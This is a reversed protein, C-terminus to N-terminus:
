VDYIRGKGLGGEVSGRLDGRSLALLGLPDSGSTSWGGADDDCALASLVEHPTM